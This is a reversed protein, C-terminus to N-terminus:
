DMDQRLWFVYLMELLYEFGKASSGGLFYYPLSDLGKAPDVPSCPGKKDDEDEEDVQFTSKASLRTPHTDLASIKRSSSGNVTNAKSKQNNPRIIESATRRFAVKGDGSSSSMKDDDEEALSELQSGQDEADDESEDELEEQSNFVHSDFGVIQGNTEDRIFSSMQKHLARLAPARENSIIAKVSQPVIAPSSAYLAGAYHMHEGLAELFSIGRDASRKGIIQLTEELAREGRIRFSFYEDIIIHLLIM